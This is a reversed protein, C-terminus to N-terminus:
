AKITRPLCVGRCDEAVFTNLFPCDDLIAFSSTTSVEWNALVDARRNGERYVHFLKINMFCALLRGWTAHFPSPSQISCGKSLWLEFSTDLPIPPKLADWFGKATPCSRLVHEADELPKNCQICSSGKWIWLFKSDVVNEGPCKSNDWAVKYASKLSFIASPEPEWILQDEGLVHNTRPIFGQNFTDLEKNLNRLNVSGQSQSLLFPNTTSIRGNQVYKSKFVEIWPKNM